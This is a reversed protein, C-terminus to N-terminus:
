GGVVHHRQLVAHLQEILRRLRAVQQHNWVAVMAERMGIMARMRDRGATVPEPAEQRSPARATFLALSRSSNRSSAPMPLTDLRSPLTALRSTVIRSPM